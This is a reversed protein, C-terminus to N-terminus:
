RNDSRRLWREMRKLGANMIMVVIFYIAAVTLLPVFLNFTQAFIKSYAKFLDVVAITSVIATEKLLAIFENGLPPLINKFAQPLIIYRYTPWTGLGLSRSAEMQGKDIAMIGARITESVYAGSNIGMSIVAVWIRPIPTGAFIVLAFIALQVMIPTGRFVALYADCIKNLIKLIINKRNNLASVKVVAVLLGILIGLLGAFLTILLTIGLGEIYYMYRGDAIINDYLSQFFDSFVNGQALLATFEM